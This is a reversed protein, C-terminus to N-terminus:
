LVIISFFHSLAPLGNECRYELHAIVFLGALTKDKPINSSACAREVVRRVHRSQQVTRHAAAQAVAQQAQQLGQEDGSAAVAVLGGGLGGACISNGKHLCSADLQSNVQHCTHCGVICWCLMKKAMNM